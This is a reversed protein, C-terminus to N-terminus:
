QSLLKKTQAFGGIYLRYFYVGKALGAGDFIVSHWGAVQPQNVLTAVERGALDYVQLIV